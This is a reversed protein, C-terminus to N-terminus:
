NTGLTAQAEQVARQWVDESTEATKTIRPVVKSRDPSTVKSAVKALADLAYSPELLKAAFEDRREENALLGARLAQDAALKALKAHEAKAQEAKSSAEASATKQQAVHKAVEALEATKVQLDGELQAIRAELAEIAEASKLLLDKSM